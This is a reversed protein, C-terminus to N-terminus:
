YCKGSDERVNEPIKLLIGRFRRSYKGSDKIFIGPIKLLIERFRRSSEGSYEEISGLNEIVNRPIKYSIGRFLLSCEECEKCEGCETRRGTYRTKFVAM